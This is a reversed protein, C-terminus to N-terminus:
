FVQNFYSFHMRTQDMLDFYACCTADLMVQQAALEAADRDRWHIIDLFQGDEGTGFDRSIFGPMRTLVPTIAASAALLQSTTVGSRPPFIVVEITHQM